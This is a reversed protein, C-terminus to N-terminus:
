EPVEQLYEIHPMRNRPKVAPGRDRTGLVRDV